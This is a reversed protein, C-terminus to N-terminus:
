TGRKHVYNCKFSPFRFYFFFIGINAACQYFLTQFFRTCVCDFLRKPWKNKSHKLCKNFFQLKGLCTKKQKKSRNVNLSYMSIFNVWHSSKLLALRQQIGISEKSDKVSRESRVKYIYSYNSIPILMNWLSIYVALNTSWSNIRLAVNLVLKVGLKKGATSRM